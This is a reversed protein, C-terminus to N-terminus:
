MIGWSELLEAIFEANEKGAVSGAHHPTTSLLRLWEDMERADIGADLQVELQHQAQSSADDFGLITDALAFNAQALLALLLLKM